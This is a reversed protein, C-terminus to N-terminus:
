LNKNIINIMTIFDNSPIKGYITMNNSINNIFNEIIVYNNMKTIYAHAISDRLNKLFHSINVKTTIIETPISSQKYKIIQEYTGYRLNIYNYIANLKSFDRNKLNTCKRKINEFKILFEYLKFIENEDFGNLKQSSDSM